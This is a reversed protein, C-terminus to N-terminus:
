PSAPAVVITPGPLQRSWGALKSSTARDLAEPLLDAFARGSIEGTTNM